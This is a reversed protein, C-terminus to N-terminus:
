PMVTKVYVSRGNEFKLIVAPKIPDGNSDLSITGTVGKFGKTAAIADRIKAPDLSQARKVADAFLFVSDRGLAMEPSINGAVGRYKKVFQRTEEGEKDPHWHNSYYSGLVSKGLSKIMSDGWGDGGLFVTKVGGARALRIIFGTNKSYDPLFVIDPGLSKMKEILPTFDDSQDLYDETFLIRGGLRSYNLVFSRALDESYKQNVNILVGATLAKLDKISFDALAKGQFLDTFCIRFICNGTGTVDPNTSTPSIMPIGAKQLIPAMAMSHSSYSAGIVTIVMQQVAQRAAKRAGLATSNNDFEVLEIGLGLVGRNRNLEEVAFRVGQLVKENGSAAKGTKSFIAGLRVSQQGALCFSHPTILLFVSLIIILKM